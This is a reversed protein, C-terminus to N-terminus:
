AEAPVLKSGKKTYEDSYIVGPRGRTQGKKMTTAGQISKVKAVKQKGKRTIITDGKEVFVTDDNKHEKRIEADLALRQYNKKKHRILERNVLTSDDDLTLRQTSFTSVIVRKQGDKAIIKAGDKFLKPM